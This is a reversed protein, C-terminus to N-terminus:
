SSVTVIIPRLYRIYSISCMLANTKGFWGLPWFRWLDKPLSWSVHVFAQRILSPDLPCHTLRSRALMPNLYNLWFWSNAEHIEQINSM